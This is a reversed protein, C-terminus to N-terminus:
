DPIHILDQKTIAEQRMQTFVTYLLWGLLVLLSIAHWKMDLVPGEGMLFVSKDRRMEECMAERVADKYTITRMEAM